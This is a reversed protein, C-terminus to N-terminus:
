NETVSQLFGQYDYSSSHRFLKFSVEADKELQALKEFRWASLAYAAGINLCENTTEVVRINQPEGARNIDFILRVREQYKLSPRCSEPVFSTCQSIPKAQARSTIREEGANLGTNCAHSPNIAILLPTEYLIANSECGSLGLILLAAWFVANRLRTM